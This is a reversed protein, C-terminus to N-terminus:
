RGDGQVRWKASRGKGTSLILGESKLQRLVVRVTDRSVGPCAAELESISVAERKALVAQRV